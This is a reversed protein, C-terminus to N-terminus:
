NVYGCFLNVNIKNEVVVKCTIDKKSYVITVVNNTETEYVRKFKQSDFFEFLETILTEDVDPLILKWGPIDRSDSDSYILESEQKQITVFPKKLLSKADSLLITIEAEKKAQASEKITEIYENDSRRLDIFLYIFVGFMLLLAILSLILSRKTKESM